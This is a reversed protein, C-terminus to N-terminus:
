DDDDIVDIDDTEDKKNFDTTPNILDILFGSSPKKERFLEMADSIANSVIERNSFDSAISEYNIRVTKAIALMKNLLPGIGAKYVVAGFSLYRSSMQLYYLNDDVTIVLVQYDVVLNGYDVYTGNYERIEIEESFAQTAVAEKENQTEYYYHDKVVNSVNVCMIFPNDNFILINSALDGKKRGVDKPLYFRYYDKDINTFEPIAQTLSDKMVQNVIEDISAELKSFCGSLNLMLITAILVKGIKKM